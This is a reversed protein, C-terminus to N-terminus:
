SRKNVLCKSFLGNEAPFYLDNFRPKLFLFIIIEEVKMKVLNERNQRQKEPDKTGHHKCGKIKRGM